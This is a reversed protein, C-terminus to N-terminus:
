GLCGREGGKWGVGQFVLAESPHFRNVRFGGGVGGRCVCMCVLAESQVVCSVDYIPKLMREVQM